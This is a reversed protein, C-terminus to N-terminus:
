MRSLAMIRRDSGGGGFTFDDGSLILQSFDFNL